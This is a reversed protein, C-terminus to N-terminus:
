QYLLFAARRKKFSELQFQWSKEIELPSVGQKFQEYVDGNLWLGGYRDIKWKDTFLNRIAYAVELGTKVSDFKNRDTILINIGGCDENKYVSADPKFKVPIFRVGALNRQNLYLALKLGEIWPAGVVEFPTETGRGVSLNTYELLGIGSYLTAQTLSRMNPSPNIWTQNTEDFWMSRRWNEMKVVTLDAGLRRETNIMQAMEGVTM